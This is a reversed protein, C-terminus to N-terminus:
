IRRLVKFSKGILEKLGMKKLMKVTSVAWPSYKSPDMGHAVLADQVTGVPSGAPKLNKAIPHQSTLHWKGEKDKFPRLQMPAMTVIVGPKLDGPDVELNYSNGFAYEGPGRDKFPKFMTWLKPDDTGEWIQKNENWRLKLDSESLKHQAELPLLYGTDKDRLATRLIYTRSKKLREPLHRMAEESTWHEGEPKPAPIKRFGIVVEDLEIQVKWKFTDSKDPDYYFPNIKIMAGESHVRQAEKSSTAWRLVRKLDNFTAGSRLVKTAFREIQYDGKTIRQPLIRKLEALRDIYPQDTLNKGDLMMLDHIVFRVKAEAPRENGTVMWTENWRQIPASNFGDELQLVECDLICSDCNLKKLAEDLGPFVHSRDKGDERMVLFKNESKSWHVHLRQGDGKPQILILGKKELAPKVVNRWLQDEEGEYFEGKAKYHAIPHFLEINKGTKIPAEKYFQDRFEKPDNVYQIRFEPKKVAVIDYLPLMDWNAGQPDEIFQVNKDILEKLARELKLYAGSPLHVRSIIDIDNPDRDQSYIASGTLSLGDPILVFSEPLQNFLEKIKKEGLGRQKEIKMVEVAKDFFKKPPSINDPLNDIDFWKIDDAEFNKKPKGKLFRLAYIDIQGRNDHILGIKGEVKADCHTEEKVEQLVQARPPKGPNLYGGPPSWVQPKNVRHILLTKRSEPDIVIGLVAYPGSKAIESGPEMREMVIGADKFLEKARAGFNGAVVRNVGLKKCVKLLQDALPPELDNRLYRIGKESKFAFKPADAFVDAIKNDETLAYLVKEAKEVKEPPPVKILGKRECRRYLRWYSSSYGSDGRKPPKLALGNKERLTNVIAAFYQEVDRMTWNGWGEGKLLRPFASNALYRADALLEKQREKPRKLDEDIGTQRFEDLHLKEIKM